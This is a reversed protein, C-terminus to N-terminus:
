DQIELEYVLKLMSFTLSTRYYEIIWSHFAEFAEISTHFVQDSNPNIRPQDPDQNNIPKLLYRQDSFKASFPIYIDEILLNAVKIRERSERYSKKNSPLHFKPDIIAMMRCFGKKRPASLPENDLLIWEVVGKVIEKRKDGKHLTNFKIVELLTTQRKQQVETKLKKKDIINHSRLHAIMNSTLNDHIYD